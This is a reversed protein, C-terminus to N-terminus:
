GKLKGVRQGVCNGSLSSETGDHSGIKKKKQNNIQIKLVPGIAASTRNLRRYGEGLYGM